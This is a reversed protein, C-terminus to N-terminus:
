KDEKKQDTSKKANSRSEKVEEAYGVKILHEGTSDEVDIVEGEPRNFLLVHPVLTKIKM